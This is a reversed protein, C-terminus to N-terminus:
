GYSLATLLIVLVPWKRCAAVYLSRMRTPETPLTVFSFGRKVLSILNIELILILRGYIMHYLTNHDSTVLTPNKQSYYWFIRLTKAGFIDGLSCCGLPSACPPTLRSWKLQFKLWPPPSFVFAGFLKFSRICCMLYPSIKGKLSVIVWVVDGHSWWCWILVKCLGFRFGIWSRHPSRILAPYLHTGALWLWAPLPHELSM